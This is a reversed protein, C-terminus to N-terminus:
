FVLLYISNNMTSTVSSFLDVYLSTALLRVFVPILHLGSVPFPPETDCLSVSGLPDRVGGKCGRGKRLKSTGPSLSDSRGVSELFGERTVRVNFRDGM